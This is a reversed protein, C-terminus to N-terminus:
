NLQVSVSELTKCAQLAAQCYTYRNSWSKELAVKRIKSKGCLLRGPHNCYAAQIELNKM